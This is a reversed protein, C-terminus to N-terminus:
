DESYTGSRLSVRETADREFQARRRSRAGLRYSEAVGLAWAGHPDPCGAQHQRGDVAVAWTNEASRVVRVRHGVVISDRVEGDGGTRM